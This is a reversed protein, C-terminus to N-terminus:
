SPTTHPKRHHSKELEVLDKMPMGSVASIVTGDPITKNKRIFSYLGIVCRNGITVGPSIYCHAGVVVNSGIKIRNLILEEGEFLHCSLDTQGGVIVNDGLEMLYSDNLMWTNIYVNKGMKCGVIKFFLNTFFTMPIISLITKGAIHYVGNFILWRLFTPSSKSYRGPKIGLSFLRIITGMIMIGVIFYVYLSAALLLGFLVIGGITIAPMMLTTYAWVILLISPGLCIGIVSAHFAYVLLTLLVQLISSEKVTDLIKSM